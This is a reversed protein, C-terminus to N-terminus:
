IRKLRFVSRGHFLSFCVYAICIWRIPLSLVHFGYRYKFVAIVASDALGAIQIKLPHALQLDDTFPVANNQTGDPGVQRENAPRSFASGSKIASRSPTTVSSPRPSRHVLGPHEVSVDQENMMRSCGSATSFRRSSATSRPWRM